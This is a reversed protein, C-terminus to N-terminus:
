KLRANDESSSSLLAQHRQWCVRFAAMQATCKRWDKTEYHCDQLATHEAACGSRRIRADYPDEEEEHDQTKIRDREEQPTTTSM